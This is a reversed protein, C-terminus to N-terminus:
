PFQCIDAIGDLPESNDLPTKDALDCIFDDIAELGNKDKLQTAIQPMQDPVGRRNMATHVESKALDGSKIVKPGDFRQIDIDVSTVYSQQHEKNAEDAFLYKTRFKRRKAAGAANHCHACNGHMYGCAREEILNSATGKCRATWESTEINILLLKSNVTESAFFKIDKADAGFAPANPGNGRAKSLQLVDFGLVPDAKANQKHHCRMCQTHSPIMHTLNPEPSRDVEITDGVADVLTASKQDAAWKYAGFLWSAPKNEAAVKWFIRTEARAGNFKFEKWLKTGIPFAWLDIADGDVSEGEPICIYRKKSDIDAGDTGSGKTGDSWLPYNPDFRYNRPMVRQAELEGQNGYLGTDILKAPLAPVPDFVDEACGAGCAALVVKTMQAYQAALPKVATGENFIEYWNAPAQTAIFDAFRAFTEDFPVRELSWPGETTSNTDLTHPIDMALPLGAANTQGGHAFTHTERNDSTDYIWWDPTYTGTDIDQATKYCVAIRLRKGTVQAVTGTNTKAGLFDGKFNSSIKITTNSGNAVVSCPAEDKSGISIKCTDIDTPAGPIDLNFGNIVSGSGAALTVAELILIKTKLTGDLDLTANWALVVDNMDFDGDVRDEFLSEAYQDEGPLFVAGHAAAMAAFYTAAALTLQWRNLRQM